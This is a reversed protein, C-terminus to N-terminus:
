YAASSMSIPAKGVKKEAEFWKRKKKMQRAMSNYHAQLVSFSQNFSNHSGEGGGFLKPIGVDLTVAVLESLWLCKLLEPFSDM